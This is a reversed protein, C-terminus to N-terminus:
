KWSPLARVRRSATSRMGMALPRESASLASRTSSRLVRQNPPIFASTASTASSIWLSETSVRFITQAGETDAGLFVRRDEAVEANMGFFVAAPKWGAREITVPHQKSRLAAPRLAGTMPDKPIALTSCAVRAETNAPPGATGRDITVGFHQGPDGDKVCVAPCKAIEKSELKWCPTKNGNDTCNPIESVTTSGDNNTTIDEVICDPNAPDAFPSDICGAGINTVILQALGEIASKYSADCVSTFQKNKVSNIVASLRVPPDGYFGTPSVCSHDVSVQCTGQMVPGPCTTYAGSPNVPNALISQIPTTPAMISTLIVDQPNVKVGGQGAAKSFFNIYKEIDILKGGDAATAPRCDALQGGSDGYTM